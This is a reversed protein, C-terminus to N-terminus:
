SFESFPNEALIAEGVLPESEGINNVAKVRFKYQNHEVLDAVTFETGKTIGIKKWPGNQGEQMEVVYEHTPGQEDPSAPKWKLKCGDATVDKTELPGKPPKPRDRVYLEFPATASGGTNSLELAWKGTDDRQPNKFIIEAM